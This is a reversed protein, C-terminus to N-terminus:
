WIYQIGVYGKFYYGKTVNKYELNEKYAKTKYNEYNYGGLGLKAFVRLNKMVERNYQIYPMINFKLNSDYKTNKSYKYFNTEAEISFVWNEAIEYSWKTLDQIRFLFAGDNPGYNLYENYLTNYTQFGYGLNTISVLNIEGSYGGRKKEDDTGEDISGIFDVGWYTGGKGFESNTRMRYRLSLKNKEDSEKAQESNSVQEYNWVVGIENSWNKLLMNYDLLKKSFAIENEWNKERKMIEYDLKYNKGILSNGEAIKWKKYEYDKTKEVEFYSKIVNNEYIEEYFNMIEVGGALVPSSVILFLLKKLKNM